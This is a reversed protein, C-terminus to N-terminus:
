KAQYYALDVDSRRLCDPSRDQFRPLLVPKPRPSALQPRTFASAFCGIESLLPLARFQQAQDDCHSEDDHKKAHWRHKSKEPTKKWKRIFRRQEIVEHSDLSRRMWGRLACKTPSGWSRTCGCLISLTHAGTDTKPGNAISFDTPMQLWQV